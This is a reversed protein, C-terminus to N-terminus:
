RVQRRARHAAALNRRNDLRYQNFDRESSRLLDLIEAKSRLVAHPLYRGAAPSHCWLMRLKIHPGRRAQM